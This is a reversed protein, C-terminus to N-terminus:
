PVSASSGLKRRIQDRGYNGNSELLSKFLFTDDEKERRLCELRSELALCKEQLLTARDKLQEFEIASPGPPPSKGHKQSRHYGNSRPCGVKEMELRNLKTELKVCKHRELRLQDQTKDFKRREDELRRANISLLEMLKIREVDNVGSSVSQSVCSGQEYSSARSLPRDGEGCWTFPSNKFDTLKAELEQLKTDKEQIINTFQNNKVKEQNLEQKLSNLQQELRSNINQEKVKNREELITIQNMLSQLLNDDHSSKESLSTARQKVVILEASLVKIRAKSADLKRKYDDLEVKLSSVEKQLCSQKEQDAKREAIQSSLSVRDIVGANPYKETFESLKKQLSIIQQARGRWGSSLATQISVNEGIESSLAKHAIKLEHKLQQVQNRSECLKASTASLKDTLEKIEDPNAQVEEPDKQKEKEVKLQELKSEAAKARNEAVALKASLERIQKGLAVIKNAALDSAVFYKDEDEAKTEKKQKELNELCRKLKENESRLHLVEDHSDKKVEDPFLPDDDIECYADSDGVFSDFETNADSDEDTDLGSSM